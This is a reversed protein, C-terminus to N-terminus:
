YANKSMKWLEGATGAIIKLDLPISFHDIYWLDHDIRRAMTDLTPTEGRHGNVQAWGTLGPKVHHRFAYKAIRVSYHTDHAVAHPRPGVISMEGRLVNLLQPLEDISSRRLWRGVRTVRPDDKAAQRIVGGDEIVRMSRFKFIKFPRGNFGQRTQRFLVPGPSDLKIALAVVAFLPVLVVLGLGALVLDIARKTARELGSLPARQLEIAIADGLPHWPRGMLEATSADPLLRVPLPLAQLSERIAQWRRVDAAVYVEDVEGARAYAIAAEVLARESAADGEPGWALQRMLSLGHRELDAGFHAPLM